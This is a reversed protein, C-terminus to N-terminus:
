QAARREIERRVLEDHCDGWHVVQRDGTILLDECVKGRTGCVACTDKPDSM